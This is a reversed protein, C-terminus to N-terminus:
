GAQDRIARDQSRAPERRRRLWKEGEVAFFLLSSVGLAVALQEGSLARTGFWDEFVPVYLLLLQLSVTLAVAAALWPNSLFGLRFTSEHEGRIALVHAMQAFVMTTFLISQWQEVGQQWYWWGTGLCLAAMLAGVWGVHLGLGRAFVSEDPKHPPRSMVNREAAELGLALAPLGDTVLNLWLIQLPLLPLPMGVLPAALMLCVEGANTALIYRIFKRVNDYIVRGEEVAAVISAFNDDLLVMDAAEKAVDTGAIGMAIGIDARKLAPADNVGDGTMAAIHGEQQLADVIKLKHEPSVRAYVETSGAVRRLEEIAMQEVQSGILLGGQRALGLEGAIHRATLPHDGTIMVGRIGASQCTAVAAAAERRPPDLIGALGLFILEEERIGEGEQLGRMAIGLVRMGRSAMDNLAAEIRARWAADLPEAAGNSWISRSLPLLGEVSGKVFAVRKYGPLPAAAGVVQHVTTMRKRNADFAIEGTRPLDRELERRTLGFRAGAAALAVETPDGGGTESADNCLVGAVLLLSGAGDLEEKGSDRMAMRRGAWELREVTMKNETLTGTKDSCIVTISGLTEVAGLRRVLVNRKLMRQAGLTLAITVVAPLGEPVAAVGISVATLFLLRADQGQWLGEVFVLGVIGLAVVALKKGLDNLRKQLPTQEQEVDELLQAIRGLVTNMGTATVLGTGRGAAVLTGRWAMNARDGLATDERALADTHKVVAESEGTLAAEEIRLGAAEGLRCDAAVFNGAELFLIDGPVVDTAPIERTQGERRVRAVPIALRKLAAMAKEARYEQSFGLVANLVVIAGIAIADKFDGLAASIGAAVMLVVMMLGTLQEWFIRWGRRMGQSELENAGHRVLRRAAEAGSLGEPGSGAEAYAADIGQCYIAEGM